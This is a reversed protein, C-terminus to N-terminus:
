LGFPDYKKPQQRPSEGDKKFSGNDLYKLEFDLVFHFSFFSLPEVIGILRDLADSVKGVSSANNFYYRHVATEDSYIERLVGCLMKKELCDCILARFRQADDTFESFNRIRNVSTALLPYNSWNYESFFKWLSNRYIIRVTPKLGLSLLSSLGACIGGRVLSSMAVDHPECGRTSSTSSELYSVLKTVKQQIEKFPNELNTMAGSESENYNNTTKMVSVDQNSKFKVPLQFTFQADLMEAVAVYHGVPSNRIPADETWFTAILNVDAALARMLVALRSTNLAIRLLLVSRLRTIEFKPMRPLDLSAAESVLKIIAPM